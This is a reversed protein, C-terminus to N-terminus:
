QARQKEREEQYQDFPPMPQSKPEVGVDKIKQQTRIGEYISQETILGCGTLLMALTLIIHKKV